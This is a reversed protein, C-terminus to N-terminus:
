FEVDIVEDGEFDTISEFSIDSFLGDQNTQIINQKVLELLALFTVVIEVRTHHERLLSFFSSKKELRLTGMISSIKQKITIVPIAVIHNSFPTNSASLLVERAAELIGKLTIGTLDVQGEVKIDPAIHLYTHMGAEERIQLYGAAKKFKKYLLLQQALAEGPDEEGPERVPPRPLLAESKIQILKSAIVLFFSVEEPSRDELQNLYNLYQDTVQALALKTIDLEAREILDLLLDLPGEYVNTSIQYTEPHIISLDTSVFTNYCFLPVKINVTILFSFTYDLNNIKKTNIQDTSSIMVDDTMQEFQEFGYGSVPVGQRQGTQPLM